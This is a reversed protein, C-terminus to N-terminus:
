SHVLSHSSASMMRRTVGANDDWYGEHLSQQHTDLARHLWRRQGVVQRSELTFMNM